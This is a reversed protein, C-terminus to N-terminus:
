ANSGEENIDTYTYRTYRHEYYERRDEVFFVVEEWSRLRQKEFYGAFGHQRFFDYLKGSDYLTKRGFRYSIDPVAILERWFPRFKARGLVHRFVMEITQKDNPYYSFDSRRRSSDATMM